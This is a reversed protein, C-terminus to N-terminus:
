WSEPKHLNEPLQTSSDGKAADVQKQTLSRAQRLDVGTLDAGSLNAERLNTGVLLAQSLHARSLNTGWLFAGSLNASELKTQSLDTGNLLAGRLDSNHFLTGSFNANQMDAHSLNAYALSVRQDTRESERTRRGLVTLVAQIDAPYHPDSPAKETHLEKDMNVPANERVYTSLVEVIPWHFSVSERAIAELSYIGGLRVELRPKGSADTAGLQEIAKTFRDTIQGQQLLRFSDEALTVNRWTFFGGTLLVAGGLITALTRRAENERDFRDKPELDKLRAVQWQPLKWLTALVLVASAGFGLALPIRNPLWTVGVLAILAFTGVSWWVVYIKGVIESARYWVKETDSNEAVIGYNYVRV